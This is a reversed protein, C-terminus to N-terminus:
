PKAGLEAVVVSVMGGKVVSGRQVCLYDIQSDREFVGAAQLSDLVAKSLNDIDRERRDPCNVVVDLALRSKLRKKARAAAVILSVAHRYDLARATLFRQGNREGPRYYHNVSPPYPLVLEISM